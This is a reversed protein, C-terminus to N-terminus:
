PEWDIGLIERLHSLPDSWVHWLCALDRRTIRLPTPLAALLAKPMRVDTGSPLFTAQPEWAGPLGFDIFNLGALMTLNMKYYFRPNCELFYIDANRALRMDFNYIGNLRLKAAIKRLDALVSADHFTFYTAREVKHIIWGRIEGAVCYISAGIDIGDIYDQQLIPAYSIRKAVDSANPPDLRFVGHGSDMSLPKVILPATIHGRALEAALESPNALLSSHPHRIGLERCLNTFRWKDNLLDFTELDPLPFCPVCLQDRVGILTRTCPCDGPLVCDIKEDVCIRNIEAAVNPDASGDFCVPSSIYRDCYRSYRLGKSPANGLVVVEAGAAKAVRLVRYPLTFLQCVLLIRLRGRKPFDTVTPRHGLSAPAREPEQLTLSSSM